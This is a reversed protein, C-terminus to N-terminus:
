VRSIDGVKSVHYYIYGYTERKTYEDEENEVLTRILKLVLVWEPM